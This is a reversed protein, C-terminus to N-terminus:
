CRPIATSCSSYRMTNMLQLYDFRLLEAFEAHRPYCRVRAQIADWVGATVEAYGLQDASFRHSIGSGTGDIQRILFELFEPDRQEDAVDDLLVDLMVGLVKTDYLHDRTQEYTGPLTTVEVGLRCWKWLFEDRDGVRSYERIWRLLDPSLKQGHVGAIESSM